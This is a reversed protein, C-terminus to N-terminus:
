PGKHYSEASLQLKMWETFKCNNKVRVVRLTNNGSSCAFVLVKITEQQKKIYGKKYQTKRSYNM